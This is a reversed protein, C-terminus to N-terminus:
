CHAGWGKLRQGNGWRTRGLEIWATAALEPSSTCSVTFYRSATRRAFPMLRCSLVNRSMPSNERRFVRFCAQCGTGIRFAVDKLWASRKKRSDPPEGGGKAVKPRPRRRRAAPMARRPECRHRGRGYSSGYGKRRDYFAAALRRLGLLAAAANAIREKRPAAQSAVHVGRFQAGKAASAREADCTRRIKRPKLWEDVWSKIGRSFGRGAFRGLAM